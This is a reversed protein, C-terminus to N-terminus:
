DLIGESKPKYYLLKYSTQKQDNIEMFNCNTVVNVCQIMYLEHKQVHYTMVRFRVDNLNEGSSKGKKKVLMMASINLHGRVGRKFSCALTLADCM